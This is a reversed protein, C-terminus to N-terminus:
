AAQGRGGEELITLGLYPCPFTFDVLSKPRHRRFCSYPTPRYPFPCKIYPPATVSQSNLDVVHMVHIPFTSIVQRKSPKFLPIPAFPMM